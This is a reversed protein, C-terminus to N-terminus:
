TISPDIKLQTTKGLGTRGAIVIKSQLSWIGEQDLDGAQVNYELATGNVTATWSGKAGDPKKYLIETLTAASLSQGTELIIKVLSQGKYISM